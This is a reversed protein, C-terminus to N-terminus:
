MSRPASSRTHSSVGVSYRAETARQCRNPRRKGGHLDWAPRSEVCSHSLRTLQRMDVLRRVQKFLHHAHPEAEIELQVFVPGLRKIQAILEGGHAGISVDFHLGLGIRLTWPEHRCESTPPKRAPTRDHARM